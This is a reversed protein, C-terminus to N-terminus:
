GWATASRGGRRRGRGPAGTVTRRVEAWIRDNRQSCPDAFDGGRELTRALGAVSRRPGAFPPRAVAASRGGAAKRISSMVAATAYAARRPRGPPRSRTSCAPPWTTPPAASACGTASTAPRAPAPPRWATTIGMRYGVPRDTGSTAVQQGTGAIQRVEVGEAAAHEATRPRHEPTARRIPRAAGTANMATGGRRSVGPPRFAGRGVSATEARKPNNTRRKAQAPIFGTFHNAPPVVIGNTRRLAVAPSAAAAPASGARGPSAPRPSRRRWGRWRSRSAPAAATWRASAPPPARRRAPRATRPGPGFPSLRSGLWCARPKGQSM